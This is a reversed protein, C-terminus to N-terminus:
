ARQGPVPFHLRNELEEDLETWGGLGMGIVSLAWWVDAPSAKAHASRAGEWPASIAAISLGRCIRRSARTAERDSSFDGTNLKLTMTIRERTIPTFVEMKM